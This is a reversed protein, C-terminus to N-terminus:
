PVSPEVTLVQERLTKYRALLERISDDMETLEPLGQGKALLSDVFDVQSRADCLVTGRLPKEDLVRVFYSASEALIRSPNQIRSGSRRNSIMHVWEHLDDLAGKSQAVASLSTNVEVGSSIDACPHGHRALIEALLDNAVHDQRSWWFTVEFRLAEPQPPISVETM